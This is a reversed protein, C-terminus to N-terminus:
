KQLLYIEQCFVDNWMITNTGIKVNMVCIFLLIKRSGNKNEKHNKTISSNKYRASISNIDHSNRICDVKNTTISIFNRKM